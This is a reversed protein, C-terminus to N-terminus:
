PTVNLTGVMTPHISCHYPYPGATGMTTPASTAGPALAGTNFGGTDAVIDHTITDANRFAVTQGAVISSPNPTFSSGGNMGVITITLTATGGTTTPTMPASYSSGCATLAAAALLAGLASTFRANM